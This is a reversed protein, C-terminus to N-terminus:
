EILILQAAPPPEAPMVRERAAAAIRLPRDDAGEEALLAVRARDSIQQHREGLDLDSVVPLHEAEEAGAAFGQDQMVYKNGLMAAHHDAIEKGARRGARQHMGVIRHQARRAPEQNGIRQRRDGDREAAAGEVDGAGREGIPHRAPHGSDRLGPHHLQRDALGGGRDIHRCHQQV